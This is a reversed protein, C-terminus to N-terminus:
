ELSNPSPNTAMASSSSCSSCASCLFFTFPLTASSLSSSCIRDREVESLLGEEGEEEEEEEEAGVLLM